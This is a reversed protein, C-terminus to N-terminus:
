DARRWPSTPMGREELLEAAADAYRTAAALDGVDRSASAALEMAWAANRGDGAEISVDVAKQALEVTREPRGQEHSIQALVTLAWGTARKDGLRSFARLSQEAAAEAASVRGAALLSLGDHNDAWAQLWPQVIEVAIERIEANRRSAEDHDGNVRAQLAKGTLSAALGLRDGQETAIRLGEASLAAARDEWGLEWSFFGAWSHLLAVDTVRESPNAALFRTMWTIAESLTGRWDWFRASWVAVTVGPGLRRSELSWAMAARMNDQEEVMEAFAVLQEPAQLRDDLDRVLVAYHDLHRDRTAALEGAADLQEAGFVRLTELLRYHSKAADSVHRSVLSRQLLRGILALAEGETVDAIAAAAAADFSGPFVALRAFFAQESQELLGFSWEVTNRLTRQREPVDRASTDLVAFRDSLRQAIEVAGLVDARAAALEIALPMGDLASVINAVAALSTPGMDFEPDIAAARELFLQVAPVAEMDDFPSGEEGPLRLPPLPMRQEGNLQLAVQSTALVTVEPCRGLVAEVVDAVSDVLHECNDIILLASQDALFDTLTAIVAKDRNEPMGISAGISAALLDADSLEDLRILWVGDPYSGAVLHGAEIALRTKGSGGPGLLTTLRSSEVFGLLQDLAQDRGVLTAAPEPLNHVPVAALEAALSPDQLLIQEELERLEPSPEIGLEEGLAESARKFVRLAEAQRGEQYLAKMLRSWLAERYPHESVLAELDAIVAAPGDTAATADLLLERAQIRLEELREAEGTAFDRYEFGAFAAGRWLNLVDGLREAAAAEGPGSLLRRAAAVGEEFEEVDFTHGSMDLRYGSGESVLVRPSQNRSRGPELLKRLQAVGHQLTNTPNSPLDDGWVAEILRDAPVTEGRAILLNVLLAQQRGSTLPLLEGERVVRM